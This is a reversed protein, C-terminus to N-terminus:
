DSGVGQSAFTCSSSIPPTKPSPLRAGDQGSRQRQKGRCSASLSDMRFSAWYSACHMPCWMRRSTCPATTTTRRHLVWIKSKVHPGAPPLPSLPQPDRCDYVVEVGGDDKCVVESGVGIKGSSVRGSHYHSSITARGRAMPTQM